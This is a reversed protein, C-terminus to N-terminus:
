EVCILVIEVVYISLWNFLIVVLLVYNVRLFKIVGVNEVFLNM